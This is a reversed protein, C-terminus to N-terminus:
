CVRPKPVVLLWAITHFNMCYNIIGYLFIWLEMGKEQKFKKEEEEEEEEERGRRREKKSKEGTKREKPSWFILYKSGWRLAMNPWSLFGNKIKLNEKIAKLDKSKKRKKKKM